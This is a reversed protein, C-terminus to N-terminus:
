ILFIQLLARRVGPPLSPAAGPDFVPLPASVDTSADPNEVVVDLAVPMRNGGSALVGPLGVSCEDAPHCSEIDCSGDSGEVSGRLVGARLGDGHASLTAHGAHSSRAAHLSTTDGHADATMALDHFLVTVVLVVGAILWRCGPVGSSGRKEYGM